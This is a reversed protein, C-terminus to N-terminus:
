RVIELLEAYLMLSLGNTSIRRGGPEKMTWTRALDHPHPAIDFPLSFPTFAYRDSGVHQDLYRSFSAKSFLNWGSERHDPDPDDVERYKVWVDIPYPNFSGFIYIRGKPKTWVLLNSLCPEFADFISHVGVMFAVDISAEPVLSRDLVSGERFEVGAVKEHARELLEPVVDYGTYDGGPCERTLYFLFEGAACGFDCVRAGPKVGGSRKVHRVVMKFVELPREYRDENLYIKKDQTRQVTIM